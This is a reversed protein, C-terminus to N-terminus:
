RALESDILSLIEEIFLEMDAFASEYDTQNTYRMSVINQFERDGLLLRHDLGGGAIPLRVDTHPVEQTSGPIGRTASYLQPLYGRGILYPLLVRYGHEDEAEVSALRERLQPWSALGLQLSRNSVLAIDGSSFLADMTGTVWGDTGYWIIDSVLHDVSDASPPTGSAAAELLVLAAQQQAEHQLRNTTLAERNAAFEVSLARLIREEELRDQRGDWWADAALALLISSVIVVGEVFVRLWPIQAKM